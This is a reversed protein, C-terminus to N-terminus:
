NFYRKEDFVSYNPLHQKYHKALEEGNYFVTCANYPKGNNMPQIYGLVVVIDKTENNLKKVYEFQEKIFHAKLLLDECPYGSLALEPFVVIDCKAKKAKDIYQTIKEYNGQLDGVITNIQAVAIKM